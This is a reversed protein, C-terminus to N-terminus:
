LDFTKLDIKALNYLKKDALDYYADDFKNNPNYRKFPNKQFIYIQAKLPKGPYCYLIWKHHNQIFENHLTVEGKTVLYSFLIEELFFDIQNLTLKKKARAADEKMYGRLKEDSQYLRKLEGFFRTFDKCDLYIQNWTTFSVAKEIYFPNKRIINLFENKHNVILQSFKKKLTSAKEDSSFYLYDCYFFNLGVLPKIIKEPSFILLYDWCHKADQINSIRSMSIPFVLIGEEAPLKNIDFFSNTLTAM